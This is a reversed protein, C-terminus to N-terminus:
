FSLRTKNVKDLDTKSEEIFDDYKNEENTVNSETPIVIEDINPEQEKSPRKTFRRSSTTSCDCKKNSKFHTYNISSRNIIKGERIDQHVKM